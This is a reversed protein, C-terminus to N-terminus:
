KSLTYEGAKETVVKQLEALNPEHDFEVVAIPPNLTVTAKLGEIGNLVNEVHTRCHNCMMGEVKFEYKMLSKNIPNNVKITENQRALTKRREQTGIRKRKLRVTNAVVSM